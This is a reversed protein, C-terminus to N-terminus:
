TVFIIKADRYTWSVCIREWSTYVRKQSGGCGMFMNVSLFILTLWATKYNWQSQSQDKYKIYQSLSMCPLSRLSQRIETKHETDNKQQWLLFFSFLELPHHTVTHFPSHWHSHSYLLPPIKLFLNPLFNSDESIAM